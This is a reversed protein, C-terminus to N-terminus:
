PKLTSNRTRSSSTSSTHTTTHTTTSTLPNSGTTPGTNSTSSTTPGPNPTTFYPTHYVNESTSRKSAAEDLPFSYFLVYRVKNGSNGPGFHPWTAHMVLAELPYGESAKLAVRHYQVQGELPLQDGAFTGDVAVHTSLFTENPAFDFYVLVNAMDQQTDQHPEQPPAGVPTMLMEVDSPGLPYESGNTERLEAAFAAGLRTILAGVPRNDGTFYDDGLILHNFGPRKAFIGEVKNHLATPRGILRRRQGSSSREGDEFRDFILSSDDLLVDPHRILGRRNM